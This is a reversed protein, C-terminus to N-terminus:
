PLTAPPIEPVRAPDDSRVELEVEADYDITLEGPGAQFRVYRNGSEPMVYSQTAAEPTIVLKERLVRQQELKAPQINLVISSPSGVQYALRCGLSFKMREGAPASSRGSGAM